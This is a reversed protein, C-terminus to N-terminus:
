HAHHRRKDYLVLGVSAAVGGLMVVFWITLNSSDGTQPVDPKNTPQVTPQASPQSTPQATSEVTPEATPEVTPAPEAAVLQAMAVRVGDAAADVEEQTANENGMVAKAQQVACTLVAYSEPTYAAADKSEAEAMLDELISKDAKFRLNLLADLLADEAQGIEQAMANDRDALLEHADALAALFEAQGEEVYKSLDCREAMQVLLELSTIDGKVMSLKHCETVLASWAENVEEQTADKDELVAKAHDLAANFSAQVMAIVDQFAPSAKQEEAYAVTAELLDKNATETAKVVHIELSADMNHTNKVDSALELVGQLVYEGQTQQYDGQSWEVPIQRWGGDDYKVEVTAPLSLQDFATGEDVTIADPTEVALIDYKIQYEESTVGWKEIIRDLEKQTVDTIGCHSVTKDKADLGTVKEPALAGDGDEKYVWGADNNIDSNSAYIVDRAGREDFYLYYKGDAYSKSWTAGECWHYGADTGAVFTGTTEWPGALQEASAMLLTGYSVSGGESKLAMYYTGDAWKISADILPHGLDILCQEQSFTQLDESTNYRIYGGDRDPDSWYVYYQGTLRDYNCEPAWARDGDAVLVLRENSFSCLDPSDVFYVEPNDWGQTAVVGFTGDKMRFVSPDRMRQSGTEMSVVAKGNNLPMFNKLDYSYSLKMGRTDDGNTFYSMIQGVYADKLILGHVVGTKEMDMSKAKVALEIPENEEAVETKYLIGDRIEADGSHVSWELETGNPALAPLKTQTDNVIFDLYRMAWQYDDEFQTETPYKPVTVSLEINQEWEGSKITGTLTILIDQDPSRYLLSGDNTIVDPNSSAWTIVTGLEGSQPLRMDKVILQDDYQAVLDQAMTNVINKRAESIIHTYEEKVQEPTMAGAYLAIDDVYGNMSSDAFVCSHGFHAKAGSMSAIDAFSLPMLSEDAPTEVMGTTYFKTDLKEGNLYLAATDGQQTYTIMAWERTKLTDAADAAIRYETGGKKIAVTLGIEQQAPNGCTAMVVYNKSDKGISLIQNWNPNDNIRVWASFTMDDGAEVFGTTPLTIYGGYPNKWGRELAVVSSLDFGKESLIEASGSNKEVGLEATYNGVTSQVPAGNQANNFDFAFVPEVGTDPIEGDVTVTAYTEFHIGSVIGRVQFQGEQELQGASVTEWTVPFTETEGDAFTVDVTQPMTLTGGVAVQVEPQEIANVYPYSREGFTPGDSRVRGETDVWIPDIAGKEDTNIGLNAAINVHYSTWLRGDPGQFIANHGSRKIYDTTGNLIPSLVPNTELKTWPGTMSDSYVVGAEYGRTWSSYWCYYTGNVKMVYPGEIGANEWEYGEEGPNVGKTVVKFDNAKESYPIDFQIEDATAGLEIKKGFINTGRSWLYYAQHDEDDLFVTADLGETMYTPKIDYPGTINEAVGIFTHNKTDWKGDTMQNLTATFTLYFLGNDPNQFIEPAWFNNKYQADAPLNSADVLLGEDKYEKFDKTSYLRIGPNFATPKENMPFYPPQTGILYYTDGVKTIQTDRQTKYVDDFLPNSYTFSPHDSVYDVRFNGVKQEGQDDLWVSYVGTDLSEPVDIDIVTGSISVKDASLPMEEMVANRIIVQDDQTFGTGHISISGDIRGFELNAGAVSMDTVKAGAALAGTTALGALMTAALGASMLRQAMKKRSM